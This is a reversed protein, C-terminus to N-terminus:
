AAKMYHNHQIAERVVQQRANQISAINSKSASRSVEAHTSWDTMANYVAWYNSGLRKSYVGKYKSWMYELSNNRRPMEDLILLPQTAGEDLQQLVKKCGLAEAFHRFAQLDSCGRSSWQQWLDRQNHFMDLSKTIIRGGLEIDLSQTHKAKYVAIEGGVFVQLNTCAYQIAAASFMVPWTGDTSSLALISLSASDGDSTRYTYEPLTYKVFMRAGNHSTRITEEINNISFGSRELMNRTTDIMSTHQTIKYGHGHVGLEAGTDTRYIVNKSSDHRESLGDHGEVLYNLPASAIQFDASGYGRERIANLATNNAYMPTINNM